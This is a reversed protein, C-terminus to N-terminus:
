YRLYPGSSYWAFQVRPCRYSSSPFNVPMYQRVMMGKESAHLDLKMPYSCAREGYYVVLSSEGLYRGGGQEEMVIEVNFNVDGYRVAGKILSSEGWNQVTVDGLYANTARYRGEPLPAGNAAQCFFLFLFSMSIKLM